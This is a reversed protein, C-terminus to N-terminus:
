QFNKNRVFPVKQTGIHAGKTVRRYWFCSNHSFTGCVTGKQALHLHTKKVEVLMKEQYFWYGVFQFKNTKLYAFSIICKWYSGSM